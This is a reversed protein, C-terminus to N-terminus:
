SFPDLYTVNFQHFKGKIHHLHQGEPKMLTSSQKGHLKDYPRRFQSKKSVQRVADKANQLMPFIYAILTM